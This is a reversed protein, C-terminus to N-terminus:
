ANTNIENNPKKYTYIELHPKDTILHDDYVVTYPKQRRHVM